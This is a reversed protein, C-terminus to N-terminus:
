QQGRKRIAAEIARYADEHGQMIEESPPAPLAAIIALAEQLADARATARAAASAIARGTWTAVDDTWAEREAAVMAAAVDARVWQTYDPHDMLPGNTVAAGPQWRLAIREPTDSM